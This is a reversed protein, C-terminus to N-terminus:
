RRREAWALLGLAPLAYACRFVAATSPSVDAVRVLIGSFAIFVSGLAAGLYPRRGGARRMGAVRRRTAGGVRM